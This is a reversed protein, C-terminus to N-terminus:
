DDEGLRERDTISGQHHSRGPAPEDAPVALLIPAARHDAMGWNAVIPEPLRQTDAM